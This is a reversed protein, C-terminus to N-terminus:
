VRVTGRHSEADETPEGQGSESEAIRADQEDRVIHTGVNSSPALAEELCSLSTIVVEEGGRELFEIAARIKPGMSGEPFEGEALYRRVESLRVRGLNRQDPKRYQVAVQDVGTTIALVALGLSAGLYASALDKDIVAEVGRYVGPEAEVVPIGGGGAAVVVLGAGLLTRIAEVEVIRVPRPSAVVRRYGRGADEVLQWGDVRRHREAEEVSCASGIPKSPHQFAPDEPDVVTQTLVCVARDQMGLRGLANVLTNSVIYGVGGESDAVAMDLTLSPIFAQGNVLESRRLIFGVQPGNGHTVVIRWGEKALSAVQRAIATANAFQEAITGREHEAILANGGVAILAAQKM